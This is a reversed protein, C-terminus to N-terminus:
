RRGSRRRRRRRKRGGGGGKAEGGGPTGDAPGREAPDPLGPIQRALQRHARQRLQPDKVLLQIAARRARIFLDRDALPDGLDFTPLEQARGGLLADDGRKLRDQEAIAFGDREQEVLEVVALGAPDPEKSVVLVCRGEGRGLSVHGRLRHLRVLDFRDANEVVMATANHVEPADEISTTALLVDIRRQRFDEYIRFREDRSMTGHYLAVRAGDLAEKALADALSSGRARDVVDAGRSLPFVIYAQQGAELTERIVEFARQRSDPPVVETSVQSSESPALITLDYTAFLTFVLTSPIPVSTVVLLDPNHKGQGLDAQTVTGFSQREEAVVLGLKKFEPLGDPRELLDRSAFVIHAEGRRLADLQAKSPDRGLLHPVLGVSRLLPEAFMYRHEASLPDPALFLVQSRGEAVMVAAMLAVLAKGSGVDGQLLRVMAVPRGLDRRVDDFAREQEDNLEIGHQVCLQALLDHALPHGLGKPRVIKEASQTLRYHFFEDFVLRKRGKGRPGLPRHLSRYADALGPVRATGLLERPVPDILRPLSTAVVDHLLGWLAEDPVGELGYTPRWVRDERGAKWPLADQLVLGQATHRLTGALLVEDEPLTYGLAHPWADPWSCRVIHPGVGFHLHAQNGDPHLSRWRVMVVGHLAVATGDPPPDEALDAVHVPQAGQPLTRLLQDVREIGLNQLALVLEATAGRLESVARGTDRKDGFELPSLKPPNPRRRPRPELTAQAAGQGGRGAAHSRDDAPDSSGKAGTVAGSVLLARPRLLAPTPDARDLAEGLAEIAAQLPELRLTWALGDVPALAEIAQDLGPLVAQPARRALASLRPACTAGLWRAQWLHAGQERTSWLLTNRIARITGV